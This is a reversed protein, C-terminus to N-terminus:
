TLNEKEDDQASQLPIQYAAPIVAMTRPEVPCAYQCAGCGICLSDDFCPIKKGKFDVMTIAKVPCAEACKGCPDEGTFARCRRPDYGGIGLRLRQKEKLTMPEIAHTPCVEVCAVCDYQCFGRTYDMMPLFVGDVGLEGWSHVLARGKCVSVCLGCAVCKTRFQELSMAGPPLVRRESDAKLHEPKHTNRMGLVGGVYYM